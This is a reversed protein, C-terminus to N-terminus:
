KLYINQTIEPILLLVTFKACVCMKYPSGTTRQYYCLRCFSYYFFLINLFLFIQSLVVCTNKELFINQLHTMKFWLQLSFFPSFFFVLIKINILFRVVTFYCLKQMRIDCSRSLKIVFFWNPFLFFPIKFPSSIFARSYIQWIIFCM